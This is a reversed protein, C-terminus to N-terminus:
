RGVPVQAPDCNFGPEPIFPNTGDAAKREVAGPCRNNRGFKLNGAAADRLGLPVPLLAELAPSVSFQNLQLGARSYSGLADYGGSSSFDDFWGVLDVTYPRFFSLQPTSGRLATRAAPLAGPREAGNRAATRNAIRDVAPQRRLFEVLDNDAGPTRVTRSLDRVTPAAALAFPRLEEM